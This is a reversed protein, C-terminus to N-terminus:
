VQVRLALPYGVAQAARDFWSELLGKVLSARM